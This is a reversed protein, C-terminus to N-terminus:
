PLKAHLVGAAAAVHINTILYGDPTIFFGSGSGNQARGRRASREVGIHVVSPRVRAVAGSVARSYADLLEADPEHEPSHPPPHLADASSNDLVARRASLPLTDFPAM